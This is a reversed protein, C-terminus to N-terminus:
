RKGQFARIQQVLLWREESTLLNRFAPMGVLTQEDRIGNTITGYLQGDSQAVVSPDDYPLPVRVNYSKFYGAIIGDAKGQPGHCYVCNRQYLVSARALNEPTAQIPSQLQALAPGTPLVEAGTVPVAGAPPALVPPEQRRYSQQYHMENFYDVPYEFTTPICASLLLALPAVALVLRKLGSRSPRRRARRSTDDRTANM